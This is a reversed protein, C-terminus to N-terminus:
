RGHQLGGHGGGHGGHGSHGSGHGSHGSSHGGYGPNHGGHGSNHGGHGPNRGGHGPNHGPAPTHHFNRGAYHSRPGRAHGGRYSHWASPRGYYFHHRNSYRSYIHFRWVGRDWYLPRYFYSANIFRRYQYDALVYRLDANRRAWYAGEVDAYGNVNLFYDLNIEYVAERQMDNLGLEYAMKDTLFLAENRAEEYGMANATLTFTFVALLTFINRRM